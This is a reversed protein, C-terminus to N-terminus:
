SRRSGCGRRIQRSCPVPVVLGVVTGLLRETGRQVTRPFDFGQYLVLVASSMAWYANDIGSVAGIAGAILTALAVRVTVTFYPSGPRGAQAVLTRPGPRGLPLAVPDTPAGAARGLDRARQASTPDPPECRAASTMARAFLVHLERSQLRLGALTGGARPEVPQYSVLTAWAQELALAASHRAADQRPTGIAEVFAAVSDGAARLVVREPGRPRVLAGSMHVCWAVAGGSLVLLASYGASLHEAGLGVGAGAAMTFM